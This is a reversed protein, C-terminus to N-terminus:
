SLKKVVIDIMAHTTMLAFDADERNIAKGAHAGPAVFGWLKQNISGVIDGMDSSGLLKDWDLIKKKTGQDDVIEKEFGQAMIKKKLTELAKRCETLVKDYEGRSYQRWADNIYTAVDEFQPELFRPIELLMVDRYKLRHLVNEVWDSKPMRFDLSFGASTWSQPQQRNEGIFSGEVRFTLDKGERLKEIQGLGYHDLM